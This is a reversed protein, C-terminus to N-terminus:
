KIDRTSTTRTRRERPREGERLVVQMLQPSQQVEKQWVHEVTGIGEILPELSRAGYDYLAACIVRAKTM